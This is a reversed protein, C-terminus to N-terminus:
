DSWDSERWARTYWGKFRLAGIVGWLFAAVLGTLVRAVVVDDPVFWGVLFLVLWALFVPVWAVVLFKWWVIVRTDPWEREGDRHAM